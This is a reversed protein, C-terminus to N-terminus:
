ANSTKKSTKRREAWFKKMRASVAKRAAASMHRKRSQRAAQPAPSTAMAGAGNGDGNSPFLTQLKTLEAQLEQIRAQAGVAAYHRLEERTLDAM